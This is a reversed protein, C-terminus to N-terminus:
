IASKVYFLITSAPERLELRAVGAMFKEKSGSGPRDDTEPLGTTTLNSARGSDDSPPTNANRSISPRSRTESRSAREHNVRARGILDGVAEGVEDPKPQQHDRRAILVPDVRDV